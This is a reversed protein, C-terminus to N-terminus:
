RGTYAPLPGPDYAAGNEWYECDRWGNVAERSTPDATRVTTEILRITRM